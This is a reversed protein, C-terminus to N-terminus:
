DHLPSNVSRNPPSHKYLRMTRVGYDLTVRTGFLAIGRSRSHQFRYLALPFHVVTSNTPPSVRVMFWNLRDGEKHGRDVYTCWRM